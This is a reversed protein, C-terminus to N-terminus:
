NGTDIRQRASVSLNVPPLGKIGCLAGIRITKASLLGIEQPNADVLDEEGPIPGSGLRGKPRFIDGYFPCFCESVAPAPSFGVRNLGDCLAPHWAALLESEGSFQNSIGHVILIRAM